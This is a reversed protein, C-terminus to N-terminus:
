HVDTPNLTSLPCSCLSICASLSCSSGMLRNLFLSIYNIPQFLLHITNSALVEWICTTRVGDRHDEQDNDPKSTNWRRRFRMINSGRRLMRNLWFVTQFTPIIILSSASGYVYKSHMPVITGQTTIPIRYKVCQCFSFHPYHSNWDWQPNLYGPIPRQTTPCTSDSTASSRLTKM